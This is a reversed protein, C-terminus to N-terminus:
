VLPLLVCSMLDGMSDGLSFVKSLIGQGSMRLSPFQRLVHEVTIVITLGESRAEIRSLLLLSLQPVLDLREHNLGIRLM